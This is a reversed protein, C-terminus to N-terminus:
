SGRVIRRWLQYQVSVSAKTGPTLGTWECVLQCNPHITIPSNSDAIDLAPSGSGDRIRTPDTQPGEYVLFTAGAPAARDTYTTIREVRWFFNNDVSDCAVVATGAADATTTSTPNIPYDVLVVSAGDTYDAQQPLQV